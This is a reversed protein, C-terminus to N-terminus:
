PLVLMEPMWLPAPNKEMLLIGKKLGGDVFSVLVGVLWPVTGVGQLKLRLGLAEETGSIKRM